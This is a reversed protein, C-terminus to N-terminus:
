MGHVVCQMEVADGELAVITRNTPFHAIPEQCDEITTLEKLTTARIELNAEVETYDVLCRQVLVGGHTSEYYSPFIFAERGQVFFDKICGVFQENTEVGVASSNPQGGLYFPHETDSATCLLSGMGATAFQGDVVLTVM